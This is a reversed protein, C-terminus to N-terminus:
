HHWIKPERAMQLILEAWGSLRINIKCTNPKILLQKVATKEGTVVSFVQFFLLLREEWRSVPMGPGRQGVMGGVFRHAKWRGGVKMQVGTVFSWPLHLGVVARRLFSGGPCRWTQAVSAPTQGRLRAELLPNFCCICGRQQGGRGSVRFIESAQYADSSWLWMHSFFIDTVFTDPVHGSAIFINRIVSM